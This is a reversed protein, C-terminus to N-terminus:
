ASHNSLLCLLTLSWAPPSLTMFDDRFDTILISLRGQPSLMTLWFDTYGKSVVPKLSTPSPALSINLFSRYDLYQQVAPWIVPRMAASTIFKDGTEKVINPDIHIQQKKAISLIDSVEKINQPNKTDISAQTLRQAFILQKFDALDQKVGSLDQKVGNLAEKMTAIDEGHHIVEKLLLGGGGVIIAALLGMAGILVPIVIKLGPVDGIKLDKKAMNKIEEKSINPFSLLQM